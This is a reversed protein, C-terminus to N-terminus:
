PPPSTLLVCELLTSKGAGLYGTLLTIPIKPRELVRSPGAEPEPEDVELLSCPTDICASRGPNTQLNVSEPVDEIDPATDRDM